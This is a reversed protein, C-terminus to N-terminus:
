RVKRAEERRGAPRSESTERSSAAAGEPAPWPGAAAPCVYSAAAASDRSCNQHSSLEIGKWDQEGERASKRKIQLCVLDSPLTQDPEALRARPKVIPSYVSLTKYVQM